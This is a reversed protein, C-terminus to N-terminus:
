PDCLVPNRPDEIYQIEVQDALPFGEAEKWSQVDQM